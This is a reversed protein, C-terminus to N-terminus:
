IFFVLIAVMECRPYPRFYFFVHFDRLLRCPSINFRCIWFLLIYSITVKPRRFLFEMVQLFRSFWLLVQDHRVSNLYIIGDYSQSFAFSNIKFNWCSYWYMNPHINTNFSKPVLYKFIGNISLLSVLSLM